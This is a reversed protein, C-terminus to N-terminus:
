NNLRRKKKVILKDFSSILEPLLLLILITSCITGESITTCIKSAAASGFYGVVLTVLSLILASTLITHISKNYSNIVAEESSMKKRHELYYSTYLIAYDITAGMLISQVILLSIFYVNGSQISLIGMTLYIATQILIVLIAPILLSKFTIAVVVFIFAITLITILNLEGQFTKSMEYAMPSNGVLYIGDKNALEKEIKELFAFTEDNEEEYTTNLVMRSYKKGILKDKADKVTDKAEIIDEKMDEDIYDDFREDKLIDENLYRVFEEITLNWKANYDKVSGYYIYLLEVLDKEVDDSLVDILSYLTDKDYKVKNLSDNIIRNVTKVKAKKSNNFSSNYDKNDMVNKILFNVFEKYSLKVEQKQYNVEYLSYLLRMKDKNIGLLSALNNSSYKTDNLVSNTIKQLLTLDNITSKSLSGKLQSDNQHKLVFTIFETPTLKVTNSNQLYMIYANKVTNEDLEFMKALEQYSYTQKEKTSEMISYVSNLTNIDEGVFQPYKVVFSIFEFPSLKFDELNGELDSHMLSYGLRITAEEYNLLKAMESYSLKTDIVKEDSFTKLLNLKSNDKDYESAINAFDNLSMKTKIDSLSIYYLYLNAMKEDDIGFLKSMKSHTLKEKLTSKDVFKSISRLKTLSTNDVSSAYKSKLVYNNIFNVFEKVTLKKNTNLSRYYILLDKVDSEKLEFLTAIEKASRKKNISNSDTFNLLRNINKKMSPTIDGNMKDNDYVDSKIFKLFDNLTLTNDEKSNYYHYYIIKLLYDEVNTGVELDDFKKNLKEYPLKQNITNGYCLVDDIKKDDELTLCYDTILDEYKNQYVVAIQNNTAFVKGVEDNEVDTYLVGLNGKLSYSFAFILIFVIVGVYRMKHAFRGLADLKIVPSKKRTKEIWKDFMLILAPLCTFVTLLSFLVGKALVFGLDKGITFSMFVLALLGVITTVSSSSISKFSAYLAKKMASVDDKDREKEQRYRNILMISYDMSLALQLIAAIANTISSISTFIINTGKNLVVAILIAFLFLFPEVYSDCMIILIILGCIIALVVIWLPLIDKNEEAIDGSTYIDYDEYKKIVEDYVKTATKSEDDDDVTIVYLTYPDKNYEETEEYDVEDVGDIKKLEKFIKDKDEKKLDKFMVNLSSTEVNKFEDEMIDLGIKTESDSPLYAYIDRNIKVQNSLFFCFISLLIVVGLVINRKEVVFDTIKKMIIGREVFDIM